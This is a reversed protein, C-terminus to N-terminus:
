IDYRLLQRRLEEIHKKSAEPILGDMSAEWLKQELRERLDSSCGDAGVIAAAGAALDSASTGLGRASYLEAVNEASLGRRKPPPAPKPAAPLAPPLAARRPALVIAEVSATASATTSPAMRLTLHALLRPKLAEYLHSLWEPSGTRISLVATSIACRTTLTFSKPSKGLHYWLEEATAEVIEPIVEAVAWEHGTFVKTFVETLPGNGSVRINVQARNRHSIKLLGMVINAVPVLSGKEHVRDIPARQCYTTLLASAFLSQIQAADSIRIASHPSWVALQQPPQLQQLAQPPQLPQTQPALNDAPMVACPRKRGLHRRLASQCDFQKTCRECIAVM